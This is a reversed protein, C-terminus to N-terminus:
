TQQLLNCVKCIIKNKIKNKVFDWDYAWIIAVLKINEFVNLNLHLIM